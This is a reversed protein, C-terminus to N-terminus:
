RLGRIEVKVAEGITFLSIFSGWESKKITLCAASGPWTDTDSSHVLVGDVVHRMSHNANPMAALIEKGGAILLCKGHVNDQVCVADYIGLAVIGYVSDWVKETKPQEPNPTSRGYPTKFLELGDNFVTIPDNFVFTSSPPTQRLFSILKM